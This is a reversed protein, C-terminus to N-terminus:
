FLKMQKPNVTPDELELRQIFQDQWIKPIKKWSVPYCNEEIYGMSVSSVCISFPSCEISSCISEYTGNHLKSSFDVILYDDKGKEKFAQLNKLRKNNIIM